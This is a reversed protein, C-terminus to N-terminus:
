LSQKKDIVKDDPQNNQKNPNQQLRDQCVTVSIAAIGSMLSRAPSSPFPAGLRSGPVVSCAPWQLTGLAMM